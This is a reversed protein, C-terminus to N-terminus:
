LNGEMTLQQVEQRLRKLEQESTEGLDNLRSEVVLGYKRRWDCLQSEAM